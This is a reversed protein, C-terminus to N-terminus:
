LGLLRVSWRRAPGRLTLTPGEGLVVTLDAGEARLTRAQPDYCPLAVEDGCAAAAEGNVRIQAPALGTPLGEGSIALATGDELARAGPAGAHVVLELDPGLGALTTVGPATADALTDPAELLRPVLAGPRAFVPIEGLPAEVEHWAPGTVTGEGWWSAWVGAPIWVRVAQAGEELAPAVLLADGLFFQDRLSPAEADDPLELVPHRFMPVGRASAELALSMLYPYLRTHEVAYRRWHALSGEDRDLMWNEEDKAGHHTRMVPTFAGLEVWRFWLERTTPPTIASAYGGIDHAYIGVGSMGLNLGIPIVTKIGDGDDWSTNQDGAWMVPALGSSGGGSWAFGSRAFFTYDGDPHGEELHALNAAQWLLPYENHVEAGTRGDHMVADYPVWEAYDAMWGDLGIRAAELQYGRLWEVAAPNTLDVLSADKFIPDILVYPSGDPRKIVFDGAMAEAWMPSEVRVFPNFYGLFKFGLGHLEGIMGELDTWRERDPYWVYELHYGTFGEDKGGIWDEVWMASAPVDNERLLRALGLVREPTMLGDNWPAFTWPVPKRPRGTYETLGELLGKFGEGRVLVVRLRPAYTELRWADERESCLEFESRETTGLLVGYGRSSMAWGMPAYADELAGNLGLVPNRNKGIGQERTWMPVRWGRHEAAYSQSGLGYFREQAQCRFSLATLTSQGPASAAPAELTLALNDREDLAFTLAGEQGDSAVLTARIEQASARVESIVAARSWAGGEREFRFAGAANFIELTTHRWAAPAYGGLRDRTADPDAEAFPLSELLVAGQADTIRLAGQAPELAVVFEGLPWEGAPAPEPLEVAVDEPADQALEPADEEGQDAADAGGVDELEAEAAPPSTQEENCGWLTLLSCCFVGLARRM